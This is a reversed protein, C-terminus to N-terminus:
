QRVHHQLAYGREKYYMYRKRGALVDTEQTSVIEILREFSAFEAPTEPALNVLVQHHPLPGQGPVALVVPTEAALPDGASVHPLFDLESMTWLMNDLQQLEQQSAAMVVLTSRSMYAKFALRCVYELKNAVNSHFDIRTM